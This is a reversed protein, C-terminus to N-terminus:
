KQIKSWTIHIECMSIAEDCSSSFFVLWARAQAWARGSWARGSTPDPEPCELARVREPGVWAQAKSCIGRLSM